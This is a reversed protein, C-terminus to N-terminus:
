RVNLNEDIIIGLYKAKKARKILECDVRVAIPNNMKMIKSSTGILMFESKM